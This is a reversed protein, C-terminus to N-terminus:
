AYLIRTTTSAASGIINVDFSTDLNNFMFSSGQTRLAIGANSGDSAINSGGIYLVNASDNQITLVKVGSPITIDGGSFAIKQISTSLAVVVSTISQNLKDYKRFWGVGAKYELLGFMLRPPLINTDDLNFNLIKQSSFQIRNFKAM